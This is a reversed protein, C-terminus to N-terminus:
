SHVRIDSFKLIKSWDENKEISKKSKSKVMKQIFTIHLCIFYGIFIPLLLYYWGEPTNTTDWTVEM